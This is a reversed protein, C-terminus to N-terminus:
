AKQAMLLFYGPSSQIVANHIERAQGQRVLDGSRCWLAELSGYTFILRVAFEKLAHTHDEWLKIRFGHAALREVWEEQSVAGALCCRIPLNGLSAMAGPKRAYVDHILLFVGDKIVRSCEKLVQDVDAALSLSCEALVGDLSAAAFPLAEGRARIVPLDADRCLGKDLLVASPDIGCAGFGVQGRLYGLAAGSGCGLDLVRAGPPWGALAVARTTLALGGPRIPEDALEGLGLREYIRCRDQEPSLSVPV